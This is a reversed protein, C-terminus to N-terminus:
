GPFLEDLSRAVASMAHEDAEHNQPSPSESLSGLITISVLDREIAGGDTGEPLSVADGWKMVMRFSGPHGVKPELHADAIVRPPIRGLSTRQWGRMHEVSSNPVNVNVVVPAPPPDSVLGAVVASAVEAAGDWCQDRLM